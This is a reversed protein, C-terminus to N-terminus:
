LVLHQRMARLMYNPLDSVSRGFVFRDSHGAKPDLVQNTSVRCCPRNIIKKNQYHDAPSRM